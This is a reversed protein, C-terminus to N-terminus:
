LAAKAAGFIGGLLLAVNALFGVVFFPVRRNPEKVYSMCYLPRAILFVCGIAAAYFPSVFHAFLWIGPLFVMLQEITNQQVRFYREFEPHGTTAPAELGTRARAAGTLGTFVVLEVIALASVLAVYEM